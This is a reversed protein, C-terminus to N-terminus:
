RRGGAADRDWNILPRGGAWTMALCSAYGDSLLRFRTWVEFITAKLGAKPSPGVDGTVALTVMAREPLSGPPPEDGPRNTM